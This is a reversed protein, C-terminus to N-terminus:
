LSSLLRYSNRSTKGYQIFLLWTNYNWAGRFFSKCASPNVMAGHQKLESYNGKPCDDGIRYVIIGTMFAFFAPVVCVTRWARETDGDFIAKFIPFLISGVVLNTMGIFSVRLCLHTNKNAVFSACRIRM